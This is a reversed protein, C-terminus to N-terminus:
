ISHLCRALEAQTHVGVKDFIRRRHTKLTNLTIGHKACLDQPRAGDALLVAIQSERPTLNYLAQLQEGKLRITQDPDGIMILGVPREATFFDHSHALPIIELVYRNPISKSSVAMVGGHGIGDGSGTKSVNSMLKQLRANEDPFLAEIKGGKLILCNDDSIAKRGNANIYIVSGSRNYLLIGYPLHELADYAAAVRLDVNKFLQNIQVARQLHSGIKGLMDM